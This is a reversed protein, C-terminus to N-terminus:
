SPINKFRDPLIFRYKDVDKTADPDFFDVPRINAIKGGNFRHFNDNTIPQKRHEPLLEDFLDHHILELPSEERKWFKSISKHTEDITQKWRSKQGGRMQSFAVLRRTQRQELHGLDAFRLHVLLLNTDFRVPGYAGHGAIDAPEGLIHPKCFNWRYSYHRRQSFVNQLPDFPADNEHQYIELGVGSRIGIEPLEDLYGCLGNAHDAVYIEDTDNFVVCDYYSLLSRVFNGIAAFRQDDFSGRRDANKDNAPTDFPINVINKAAPIISKASAETSNHDIIFLNEEGFQGAYYRYWNPLYFDEDRVM